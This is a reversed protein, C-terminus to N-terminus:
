RSSSGRRSRMRSGWVCGGRDSACQRRSHVGFRAEIRECFLGRVTELDDGRVTGVGKGRGPVLSEAQPLERGALGGAAKDAVGVINQGDGERGVVALDDRSGAVAGDLQPVGETVALVGDGVLAVGVPDGADAEGGVGLVGDDDGSAPVLEDLNTAAREGRRWEERSMIYQMITNAVESRSDVAM